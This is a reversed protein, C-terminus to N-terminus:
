ALLDRFQQLQVARAVEFEVFEHRRGVSELVDVLPVLVEGVALVQASDDGEGVGVVSSVSWQTSLASRPCRPTAMGKSGADCAKRACSASDPVGGVWSDVGAIARILPGIKAPMLPGPGSTARTRLTLSSPPSPPVNRTRTSSGCPVGCATMTYKWPPPHTIPSM